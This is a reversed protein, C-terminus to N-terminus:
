WPDKATAMEIVVCALAWIDVGSNYMHTKLVEPAVWLPTYAYGTSPADMM